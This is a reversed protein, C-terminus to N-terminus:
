RVLIMKKTEVFSGAQLRYFYIGSSVSTADFKVEYTGPQKEENVLTTVERGLIDFVTLKVNSFASLQYSIITIPNFPNPYNQSLNFRLPLNDTEEEIGVLTTDGYVIGNKVMGKLGINTYGFDYAIFMSDIGFGWMLSYEYMGLSYCRNRREFSPQNFKTRMTISTVVSYNVHQGNPFYESSDGVALFLKEIEKEENYGNGIQYVIGNSSDIRHFYTKSYTYGASTGTLYKTSEFIKFYKKGNVVSDGIVSKVIEYSYPAIGPELYDAGYATYIWKNGIKLPYFNLYFSLNPNNILSQTTEITVVEIGNTTSIYFTNSGSKKHLGTISNNVTKILSFTLGGNLSQYINYGTAYYVADPNTNDLTLYIPTRSSVRESWTFPNGFDNSSFLKFNSENYYYDFDRSMAVAFLNKGNESIKIGSNFFVNSAQLVAFEDTGGTLSKVIEGPFRYGFIHNDNIPSIATYSVEPYVLVTDWTFGGDNSIIFYGEVSLYIKQPNQKSILLPTGFAGFPIVIDSTDYRNIYSTPNIGCYQYYSNHYIYKAPDNEFFKYDDIFSGNTFAPNSSFFDYFLITDINSSTNFHRVHNTSNISVSTYAYTSSRYFLHTTSTSDEFGNLSHFSPVYNQSFIQVSLVLLFIISTKM